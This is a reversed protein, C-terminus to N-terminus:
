YLLCMKTLIEMMSLCLFNELESGWSIWQVRRAEQKCSSGLSRSVDTRSCLCWCCYLQVLCLNQLNWNMYLLASVKTYLLELAVIIVLSIYINHMVMKLIMAFKIVCNLSTCANPKTQWEGCIIRFQQVDCLQFFLCTWYWIIWELKLLLLLEIFFYCM